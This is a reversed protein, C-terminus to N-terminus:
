FEVEGVTFTEKRDTLRMTISRRKENPRGYNTFVDVQLTVAGSLTQANSGFFNTQVTYIGKMAKKLLYEEPGYGRTFDCSVLGGIGTRNYGYYAKEGSPENVWLDMDTMDADWTMVIRLDLQMPTIFRADVGKFETVGTAKAKVILNNMEELAMLEIERFREDWRRKAVVDWLLSVAREFRGLRGLVLGLDRYSQPEEPRMKLVEEFIGASLELLDRQALRHALVRMLAPNELKLEALNSLVQLGLAEDKLGYFFDSCDLYFAPSTGFEAKEKQYAEFEAGPKASKIRKLYPTDPSWAKMAVGPEVPRSPAESGGAVDGKAKEEMASEPVEMPAPDPMSQAESMAQSPRPAASPMSRVRDGDSELPSGTDMMQERAASKKLRSQADPNWAFDTKYWEIRNKWLGLVEELKGRQAEKLDAVRKEMVEFYQKQWEPMSAPPIIEHEIYQEPRELVILSTQPTVIGHRKGLAIMEKENKQPFAELDELKKQAWFRRLLDGKGADAAKVEFSVTKLIKGATGFKLTIKAEPATLRGAVEFRGRASKQLQPVLDEAGSGEAGLFLYVPRGIGKVAEEPKVRQLNVYEGGNQLALQGLLAHNAGPDGSFAYLPAAFTGPQETGFNSIGDTFLLYVDPVAGG